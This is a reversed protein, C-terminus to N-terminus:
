HQAQWTGHPNSSTYAMFCDLNLCNKGITGNDPGVSLMLKRMHIKM